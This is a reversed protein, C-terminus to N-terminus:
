ITRRDKTLIEAQKKNKETLVLIPVLVRDFHWDIRAQLDKIFIEQKSM